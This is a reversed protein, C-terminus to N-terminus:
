LWGGCADWVLQQVLQISLGGGAAAGQKGGNGGAVAAAEAPCSEGSVAAARLLLLQQGLQLCAREVPVRVADDQINENDPYHHIGVTLRIM